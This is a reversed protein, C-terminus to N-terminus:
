RLNQNVQKEGARKKKKEGMGRVESNAEEAAEGASLLRALLFRMKCMFHSYAM